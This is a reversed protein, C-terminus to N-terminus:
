FNLNWTVSPIISGIVTYRVAENQLQSDENQRFYVSYPNKRNLANYVSVVFESHYKRDLVQKGRFTAAFDLRNYSPQRYNNRSNASNYQVPFGDFNFRADPLTAPTGSAYNLTASLSIRPKLEYISVLSLVHTKDYKAPFFENNNIGDIKRETRSLTYSVWGKLRGANKKVFFESGYARGKGFLMDGELNKNLLTEAGSIFDIQNKLDRYYVEASAEWSNNEAAHFYGASLQDALQPKVNASSPIYIDLPSSAMTNSVYHLNQSTRTYSAKIASLSSIQLKATARPELNIYKKITEGNQYSRPNVPLKREGNEGTYQYVTSNGASINQFASYRLGYQFSFMDNMKVEHDWFGAYEFAKQKPMYVDNFASNSGTPRARGPSFDHRIVEGGFYITSSPSQYFNWTHKLSYDQINAKWEFSSANEGYTGLMYNYDSYIASSNSFLKSNYLHNWRLTTTRNGWDMNVENRVKNVDRGGYTSIFLKDKPSISFNLKATLDYFYVRTDQLATDKSLRMFMDAYSRRGSIIFSSKDKKIPGEVLLRSSISGIGGSVAYEKANGEKMRVDLLSSLRGGFRAPMESKMLTLDKVADPNFVSFFGLLHSSNYVPAEDLLILNQDIGGGRVNFGPAGEGVTSVGPLYLLTRVVDAEGLLAPLQKVTQMSVSMKGMQTQQINENRNGPTIIVEKLETLSSQLELQVKLDNRLEVTRSLMQFGMNRVDLTYTGAELSISYFGYANSISNVTTGRISILAGPLTESNAVDKVYGSLTFKSPVNTKIQGSLATTFLMSLMLVVVQIQIFKTKM